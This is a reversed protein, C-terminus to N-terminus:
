SFAIVADDTDCRWYESDWGADNSIHHKGNGVL